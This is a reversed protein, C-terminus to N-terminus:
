VFQDRFSTMWAGGQKSARPHYDAYFVSLFQGDKDFVEYVKVEPHYKDITTNEKFYIGYLKEALGLVGNEVKELEFYPRTAEDDLGFLQEKLKESYYSYDWRQLTDNLGHTKAFDAVQAVDNKGFALSADLLENLFSTIVEYLM